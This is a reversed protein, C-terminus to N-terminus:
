SSFQNLLIEHAMVIRWEPIPTGVGDYNESVDIDKYWSYHPYTPNFAMKGQRVFARKKEGVCIGCKM